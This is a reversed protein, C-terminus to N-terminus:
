QVRLMTRRLIQNTAQADFAEPDYGPELWALIEKHERRRPNKM